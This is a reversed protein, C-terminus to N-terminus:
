IWIVKGLISPIYPRKRSIINKLAQGWQIASAGAYAGIELIRVETSSPPRGRQELDKALYDISQAMYKFRFPNGQSSALWIGHYPRGLLRHWQYSLFGFPLCLVHYINDLITLIKMDRVRSLVFLKLRYTVNFRESM